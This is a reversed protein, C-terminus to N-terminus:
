RRGMLQNIIRVVESPRPVLEFEINQQFGQTKIFVDGYHFISGFFGAINTTIESVQSITTATFEKYLVNFFDLDIIRENTVIGVTFYWLLFNIWIYSFTFFVAFLFFVSSFRAEFFTPFIFFSLFFSIIVLFISNIIWSLQTLPHRRVVLIVQEGKHQTEFRVNPRMLFSHSFNTSNGGPQPEM